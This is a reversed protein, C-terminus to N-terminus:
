DNTMWVLEGNQNLDYYGSAKRSNNRRQRLTSYGGGDQRKFLHPSKNRRKQYMLIRRKNRIYYRRRKAKMRFKNRRRLRVKRKEYYRRAEGKQKRQRRKPPRISIDAVKMLLGGESIDWYGEEELSADVRRKLGTSQSQDIYPHGYNEGPLGSSRPREHLAKGEPQNSLANPNVKHPYAKSAGSSDSPTNYVPPGARQEDRGKPHGEPLPLVRDRQPKGDAYDERGKEPAPTGKDKGQDRTDNVWTRVGSLNQVLQSHGM